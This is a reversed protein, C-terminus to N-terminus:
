ALLLGNKSFGSSTWRDSVEEMDAGKALPRPEGNYSLATGQHLDNKLLM